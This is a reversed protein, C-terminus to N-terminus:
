AQRITRTNAANKVEIAKNKLLKMGAHAICIAELEDLSLLTAQEGPMLTCVYDYVAPSLNDPVTVDKHKGGKTWYKKYVFTGDKKVRTTITPPPDGITNRRWQDTEIAATPIGCAALGELAIGHQRWMNGYVQASISSFGPFSEVFGATVKAGKDAVTQVFEGIARTTLGPMIAERRSTKEIREGWLLVTRIFLKGDSTEALLAIAAKSSGPDIGITIM